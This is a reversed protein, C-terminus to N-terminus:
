MAIYFGLIRISLCGQHGKISIEAHSRPEPKAPPSVFVRGRYFHFNRSGVVVGGRSRNQKQEADVRFIGARQYLPHLCPVGHGHQAAAGPPSQRLQIDIRIGGARTGNHGQCHALAM